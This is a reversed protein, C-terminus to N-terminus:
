MIWASLPSSAVGNVYVIWCVKDDDICEGRGMRKRDSTTFTSRRGCISDNRGAFLLQQVTAMRKTFRPCSLQEAHSFCDCNSLLLLLLVCCSLFTGIYMEWSRRSGKLLATSAKMSFVDFCLSTERIVRMSSTVLALLPFFRIFLLLREDHFYDALSRLFIRQSHTWWASAGLQLQSLSFFM